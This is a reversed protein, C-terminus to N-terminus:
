RTDPGSSIGAGVAAGRRAPGDPAHPPQPAPTRQHRRTHRGRLLAHGLRGAQPLTLHPLYAQSIANAIRPLEATDLYVLWLPRHRPQFKAKFAMLSRFGYVPEMLRGTHQLLRALVDSDEDQGPMALPAGSLSVFEAGEDQFTTAATAILLEMVGPPCGPTRRMLDLTWGVPADDRRAPLWSTIALVDGDANLAVLGRVAPDTLEDMGGLTFGMEPLGKGALWDESARTLQERLALPATDWRLWRTTIGTRTARNLASRVDQWKKGVFALEGLPLWTETAVQLRHATPLAEVVADTVSYWCPTWGREDCWTTFAVVAAPLDAPPGVPDGTTVAVRATVRYAVVTRGDASFWWHNGPWTTMHALAGIGHTAVVARAQAVDGTPVVSRLASWAAGVLVAWCAIGTWGAVLRAPGHLPQSRPLVEGLYGPPLLRAPLDALLQGVTPANLYASGLILGITLYTAVVVGVGVLAVISWRRVTGAAATVRFYDRTGSLLVLVLGPVVLPALLAATPLVGPRTALLPLQEAPTTLATLAVVGGVVTLMGSLAVAGVWAARRGRRLGEALVLQLLVPLVSAIAPSVGTLRLQGQLVRCDGPDGGPGCVSQLLGHTPRQSVFLHALVSLPGQPDRSVAALLPGIATAVVLLAVLARSERRSVVRAGPRAHVGTRRGRLVASGVLGIAFGTASLVDGAGGAYLVMMALLVGLGLRTRRRWVTSWDGSALAVVTVIAPLPGLETASVLQQGWGDGAAALVVILGLGALTAALQGALLALATRRCGWSREIPPLLVAIAIATLVTATTTGVALGASLVTWWQGSALADVGTAVSSGPHGWGLVRALALIGVLGVTVPTGRLAGGVAAGAWTTWRRIM